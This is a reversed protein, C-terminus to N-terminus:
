LEIAATWQASYNAINGTAGNTIHAGFTNVYQVTATRDSGSGDRVVGANGTASSYSTVTPSARKQVKFVVQLSTTNILGSPNYNQILGAVVARNSGDFSQEYYRQCLALEQGYSRREFPTAVTGAELQVGTIYFTAGSTGVLSVAGTASRLDSGAWSGATGSFGSGVGLGLAIWAGVGNNTLWTGATDGEIAVTKQEWTNASSISYSFPYSRNQASNQIAGGFAGTLSSRVWFSVTVSKAGVAGWGLDAFNFGEIGQRLLCYQASGLSTDATTTTLLLSNSFGPPATSSQQATMVGDTDEFGQWRDVTYIGGNTLTVSAGANRQDIRMDGNIIRNRTGALPGGNISSLTAATGTNSPGALNTVNLTSM